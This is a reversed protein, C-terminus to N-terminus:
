EEKMYLQNYLKTEKFKKYPYYGLFGGLTNFILDDIDTVKNPYRTLINIIFQITEISLSILFVVKITKKLTLERESILQIFIPVPMLLFINGIIQIFFTNSGITDAVTKFPVYQLYLYPAENITPAIPKNTMNITIPLIALKVLSLIYFILAFYVM